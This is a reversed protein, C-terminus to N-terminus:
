DFVECILMVFVVGAVGHGSGHEPGADFQFKSAKLSEIRRRNKRLNTGSRYYKSNQLKGMKELRFHM